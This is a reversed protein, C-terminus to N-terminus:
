ILNVQRGGSHRQNHADRIVGPLERAQRERTNCEARRRGQNHEVQHREDSFARLRRAIRQIGEGVLVVVLQPVLGAFTKRGLVGFIGQHVYCAVHALANKSTM